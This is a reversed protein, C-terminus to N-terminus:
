VMDKAVEEVWEFKPDYGVHIYVPSLGTIDRYLVERKGDASTMKKTQKMGKKRKGFKSGLEWTQHALSVRNLKFHDEWIFNESDKQERSLFPHVVAAM